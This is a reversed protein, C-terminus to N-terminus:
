QSGNFNELSLCFWININNALNSSPDLDAVCESQQCCRFGTICYIIRGCSKIIAINCSILVSGISNTQM